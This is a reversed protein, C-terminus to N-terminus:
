FDGPPSGIRTCLSRSGTRSNVSANSQARRDPPAPAEPSERPGARPNTARRLVQLQGQPPGRRATRRHARRSSRAERARGGAAPDSVAPRLEGRRTPGRSRRRRGRRRRPRHPRSRPGPPRTPHSPRRASGTPACNDRPRDPVLVRFRHSDTRALEALVFSDFGDSKGSAVSYRPRMAKVQNPHVAIVALGADLLREGVRRHRSAQLRYRGVDFYGHWGDTRVESGRVVHHLVFDTLTNKTLPGDGRQPGSARRVGLTRTAPATPDRWM